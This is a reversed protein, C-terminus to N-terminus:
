GSEARMTGSANVIKTGCRILSNTKGKAEATGSMIRPFSFTGTKVRRERMGVRIRSNTIKTRCRTSSNSKAKTIRCFYPRLRHDPPLGPTVQHDPPHIPTVQHDLPLVIDFPPRSLNRAYSPPVASIRAYSQPGGLLHILVGTSRMLLWLGVPFAASALLFHHGCCSVSSTAVSWFMEVCVSSPVSVFWLHFFFCASLPGFCSPGFSAWVPPPPSSVFCIPVFCLGVTAWLVRTWLEELCASSPVSGFLFRCSVYASPPGFGSSGFSGGFLPPPSSSFGFSLFPRGITAWFAFTWHEELCTSSPVCFLGLDSFGLDLPGRHSRRSPPLLASRLPPPGAPFFILWWSPPAVVWQEALASKGWGSPEGGLAPLSRLACLLPPWPLRRLRGSLGHRVTPPAASAAGLCVGLAERVYDIPSLPLLSCLRYAIFTSPVTTPLRHLDCPGYNIPSTSSLASLDKLAIFDAPLLGNFQEFLEAKWLTKKGQFINLFEAIVTSRAENPKLVPVPSESLKIAEAKSSYLLRQKM